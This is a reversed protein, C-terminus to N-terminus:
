RDTAALGRVEYTEGSHGALVPWGAKIALAKNKYEYAAVGKGAGVVIEMTGDRDLDAIIAGSYIRGKHGKGDGQEAVAIQSGNKDWVFLNYFAGVLENQKDGDLDVIAPSAFWSTGTYHINKVFVPKKMAAKGGESTCTTKPPPPPPPLDVDPGDHPPPSVKTDHIGPGDSTAGDNMAGDRPPTGPANDSCGGLPGILTFAGIAGITVM